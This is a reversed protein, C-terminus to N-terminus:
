DIGTVPGPDDPGDESPAGGLLAGLMNPNFPVHRFM